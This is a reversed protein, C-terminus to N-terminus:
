FVTFFGGFFGEFSSVVGLPLVGQGLLGSVVLLVFRLLSFVLVFTRVSRLSPLIPNFVAFATM